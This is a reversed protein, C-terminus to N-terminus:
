TVCPCSTTQGWCEDRNRCEAFTFKARQKQYYIYLKAHSRWSPTPNRKPKRRTAHLRENNTVFTHFPYFQQGRSVGGWGWGRAISENIYNNYECTCIPCWQTCVRALLSKYVCYSYPTRILLLVFLLSFSFYCFSLLSLSRSSAELVSQRREEGSNQVSEWIFLVAQGQRVSQEYKIGWSYFGLTTGGKGMIRAGTRKRELPVALVSIFSFFFYYYYFSFSSLGLSFTYFSKESRRSNLHSFHRLAHGNIRRGDYLTSPYAFM